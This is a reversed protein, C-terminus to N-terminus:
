RIFKYRNEQKKVLPTNNTCVPSTTLIATLPNFLRTSTFQILFKILRHILFGSLYLVHVSFLYLESGQMMESYKNSSLISGQACTIRLKIDTHIQINITKQKDSTNRLGAGICGLMYAAVHVDAYTFSSRVFIDKHM